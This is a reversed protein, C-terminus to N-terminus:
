WILRPVLDEIWDMIQDGSDTDEIPDYNPDTLIKYRPDDPDYGLGDDPVDDIEDDMDKAYMAYFSKDSIDDLIEYGNERVFCDGYKKYVSGDECFGDFMHAFRYARFYNLPKGHVTFGFPNEFMSNGALYWGMFARCEMATAKASSELQEIETLTHKLNTNIQFSCLKKNNYYYTVIAQKSLYEKGFEGFFQVIKVVRDFSDREYGDFSVRNLHDPQELVKPQEIQTNMAIDNQWFINKWQAEAQGCTKHQKKMLRLMNDPSTPLAITGENMHLCSGSHSFYATVIPVDTVNNM